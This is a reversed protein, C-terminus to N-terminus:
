NLFISSGLQGMSGRQYTCWMKAGTAQIENGRRNLEKKFLTAFQKKGIADNGMQAFALSTQKAQEKDIMFYNSCIEGIFFM